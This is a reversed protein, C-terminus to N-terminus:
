CAALAYALGGGGAAGVFFALQFRRAVRQGAATIQTATERAYLLAADIERRWGGAVARSALNPASCYSCTVFASGAVPLEGGCRRCCESHSAGSRAVILPGLVQRLERRSRAFALYTLLGAGAIVGIPFATWATWVGANAITAVLVLAGFAWPAMFLSANEMLKLYALAPGRAADDAWRRQAGLARLALVRQAADAAPLREVTGCHVCRLEVVVSLHSQTGHERMPAGCRACPISTPGSM